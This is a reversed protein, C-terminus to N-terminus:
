NVLLDQVEQLKDIDVQQNKLEEELAKINGEFRGADDLLSQKIAKYRTRVHAAERQQVDVAHINNQIDRISKVIPDM